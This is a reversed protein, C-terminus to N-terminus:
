SLNTCHGQTDCVWYATMEWQPDFCTFEYYQKLMGNPYYYAFSKVQGNNAPGCTGLPAAEAPRSVMMTAAFLVAALGMTVSVKM